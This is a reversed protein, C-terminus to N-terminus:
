AEEDTHEKKFKYIDFIASIIAGIAVSVNAGFLGHRVRNYLDLLLANAADNNLQNLALHTGIDTMVRSSLLASSLGGAIAMVIVVICVNKVIVKTM